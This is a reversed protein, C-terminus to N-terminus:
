HYSFYNTNIYNDYINIINTYIGKIDRWNGM